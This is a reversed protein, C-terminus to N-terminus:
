KAQLSAIYHTLNSIRLQTEGASGHTMDQFVSGWVPMDKSGHSPNDVDGKIAGYVKNDPFKGGNQLALTTLDSPVSKMAGAAPGKGKGDTGHCVACYETYMQQGSSASTPTVTTKKVKQANLM